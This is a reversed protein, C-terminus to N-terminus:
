GAAGLLNHKRALQLAAANAVAERDEVRLMRAASNTVRFVDSLSAKKGRYEIVAESITICTELAKGNTQTPETAKPTKSM